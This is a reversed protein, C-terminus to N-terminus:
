LPRELFAVKDRPVKGMNGSLMPNRGVAGLDDRAGPGIRIELPSKQLVSLGGNDLGAEGLRLMVLM